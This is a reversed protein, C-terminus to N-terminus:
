EIYRNAIINYRTGDHQAWVAMADDNPDIAIQPYALAAGSPYAEITAATGWSTGNWRNAVINYRTGDYQM